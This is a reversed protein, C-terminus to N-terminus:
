SGETKEEIYKKVFQVLIVPVNASAIKPPSNYFFQLLKTTPNCFTTCNQYDTVYSVLNYDDIVSFPM